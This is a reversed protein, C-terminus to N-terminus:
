NKKSRPHFNNYAEKLRRNEVHTYIQTTSVDSHGLLEQVSRLDAGGNLLDTAFTHRLSHPSIRQDLGREYCRKKLMAYIEERSFPKGSKTLFVYNSKKTNRKPRVKEIYEKLAEKNRENIPVIREKNGKGLVKLLEQSLGLQNIKLNCCESVRLGCGYITELIAVYCIESPSDGRKELLVQIDVSNLYIPLKQPKKGSKLYISPNAMNCFISIYEHFSKIVTIAHNVTSQEYNNLTNIYDNIENFTIEEVNSIGIEEIYSIYKKIDQTYSQITRLSKQDVATIYHIYDEVADELKM